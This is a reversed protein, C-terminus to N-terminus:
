DGDACRRIRDCSDGGGDIIWEVGMENLSEITRTQTRHQTHQNTKM